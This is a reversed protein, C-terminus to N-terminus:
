PTRPLAGAGAAIRATLEALLRRVTRRTGTGALFVRLVPERAGANPSTAPLRAWVEHAAEKLRGLDTTGDALFVIRGLPVSHLLLAIEVLCGRSAASFGRLDMLIVASEHMLRSVAAQWTDEHCFVDEVRFLGDPDPGRGREALRMDLDHEGGIFQRSLRGSLFDYFEHPELNAEALDTGAILRIPGLHRWRAGLGDLLDQTGRGSRFVRLLLLPAPTAPPRAARRLGVSLALRYGLFAAVFTWGWPSNFSWLLAYALTFVLAITELVLMQESARRSRYRRGYWLVLGWVGLAAVGVPALWLAHFGILYWATVREPHDADLLSRPAAVFAQVRAVREAPPLAALEHLWAEGGEVLPRGALAPDVFHVGLEGVARAGAYMFGGVFAGLLLWVCAFVLPGVARLRRATFVLVVLTPVGAFVLWVELLGGSGLLPRTALALLALWAITAAIVHRQGGFAVLVAAMVAPTAFVLLLAVVARPVSAPARAGFVLGCYVATALAAHALGAALVVLATRRVAAEAAAAARTAPVADAAGALVIALPAAAAATAESPQVLGDSARAGVALRMSRAVRRRYLALIVGAVVLAVPIAALGLSSVAALLTPRDFTALLDM